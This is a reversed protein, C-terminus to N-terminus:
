INFAICISLHVNLLFDYVLRHDLPFPIDPQFCLVTKYIKDDSITIAFMCIFDKNLNYWAM